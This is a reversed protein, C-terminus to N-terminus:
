LKLYPLFQKHKFFYCIIKNTFSYLFEIREQDKFQDSKFQIAFIWKIKRQKDQKQWLDIKPTPETLKM